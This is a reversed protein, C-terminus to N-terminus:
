IQAKVMEGPAHQGKVEEEEERWLQEEMVESVVVQLHGAEENLM